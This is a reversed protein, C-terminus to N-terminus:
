DNQSGLMSWISEEVMLLLNWMSATISHTLILLMMLRQFMQVTLCDISGRLLTKMM